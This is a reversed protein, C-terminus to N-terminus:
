KSEQKEVHQLIDAKLKHLNLKLDRLKKPLERLNDELQDLLRLTEHIIYTPITAETPVHMQIDRATDAIERVNDLLTKIEYLTVLYKVHKRLLEHEIVNLQNILEDVHRVVDSQM